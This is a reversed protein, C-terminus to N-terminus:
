WAAPAVLCACSAPERELTHASMGPAAVPTVQKHSGDPVRGITGNHRTRRADGIMLGYLPPMNVIPKVVVVVPPAMIEIVPIIIVRMGTPHISYRLLLRLL